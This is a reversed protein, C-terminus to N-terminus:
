PEEEEEPPAEEPEGITNTFEIDEGAQGEASATVEVASIYGVDEEIEARLRIRLDMQARGEFQTERLQTLDQIALTDVFVFGGEEFLMRCAATQLTLQLTSCMSIGSLSATPGPVGFAHIALTIERDGGVARVGTDDTQEFGDQGVPVFTRADLGVYPRPPRHVNQRMWIVPVGGDQMTALAGAAWEILTAVLNDTM